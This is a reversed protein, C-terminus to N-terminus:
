KRNKFGYVMGLYTDEIFIEKKAIKKLSKRWLLEPDNKALNLTTESSAMVFNDLSAGDVTPKIIKKTSVHNM